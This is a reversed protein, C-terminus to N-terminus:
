VKVDQGLGDSPNVVQHKEAGVVLGVVPYESDLWLGCKIENHEDQRSAEHSGHGTESPMLHHVVLLADVLEKSANWERQHKVSMEVILMDSTVVLGDACSFVRDKGRESSVHVNTGNM